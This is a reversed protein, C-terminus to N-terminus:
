EERQKGCDPCFKSAIDRKGCNPCDWMGTSSVTPQEKGCDPCFRSTIRSKGCTCTWTGVDSSEINGETSNGSGMFDSIIPTITGKVTKAVSGMTGLGIGLGIMSGISGGIGGADGQSGGSGTGPLGNQMAQIGVQRLTEEKYSYSKARMEEAEALAQASYAEASAQGKLKIAESEGRAELKTAEAKAAAAIKAEEGSGQTRLIKRQAETQEEVLVRRQRAEAEANLVSEDRVRIIKEAEQTRWREVEDSNHIIVRTLNFLNEPIELGYEDFVVNIDNRLVNSIVIKKTEIDLVNINNEIIINAMLDSVRMKVIDSFKESIYEVDYSETNGILSEKKESASTGIIKYLLKRASENDDKVKLEFSGGMGIEIYFNMGPNRLRLEPIGWRIKLPNTRVFYVNSAFTVGNNTPLKYLEDILPLRKTELMYSGPGFLDLSKGDLFFIAKQGERVVLRSGLCFNQLPHRYIFIDNLGQDWEVVVPVKGNKEQLLRSQVNIKINCQPCTYETAAADCELRQKCSPCTFSLITNASNIKKHCVPCVAFREKSKDYIVDNGCHPCKKTVVKESDINIDYGCACKIIKKAFIGTSAAVNRKCIPCEIYFNAM